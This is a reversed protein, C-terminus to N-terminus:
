QCFGGSSVRRSTPADWNLAIYRTAEVYDIKSWQIESKLVAQYVLEAVKEADLNPYLASVDSGLIIMPISFDQVDEPNAERIDVLRDMDKELWDM